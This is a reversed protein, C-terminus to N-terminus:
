EKKRFKREGAKERAFSLALFQLYTSKGSGPRGLIAINDHTSILEGIDELCLEGNKQDNRDKSGRPLGFLISLFIGIISGIIISLPSSNGYIFNKKIVYYLSYLPTASFLLM